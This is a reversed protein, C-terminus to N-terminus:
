NIRRSERKIAESCRTCVDGDNYRYTLVKKDCTSMRAPYACLQRNTFKCEKVLIIELISNSKLRTTGDITRFRKGLYTDLFKRVLRKM